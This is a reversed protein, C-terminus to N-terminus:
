GGEPEHLSRRRLFMVSQASALSEEVAVTELGANGARIVRSRRGRLNARVDM